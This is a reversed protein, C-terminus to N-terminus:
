VHTSEKLPSQTENVPVVVHTTDQQEATQDTIALLTTQGAPLLARVEAPVVKNARYPLKLLRNKQMEGLLLFIYQTAIESPLPWHTQYYSQAVANAWAWTAQWISFQNPRIGYHTLHKRVERVLKRKPWGPLTREEAM